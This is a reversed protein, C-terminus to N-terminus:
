KRSEILQIMYVSDCYIYGVRLYRGQVQVRARGGADDDDGEREDWGDLNLGVAAAMVTGTRL